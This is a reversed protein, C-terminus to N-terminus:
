FDTTDRKVLKTSLQIKNPIAEKKRLLKFMMGVTTSCLLEVHNNISSLEPECCTALTSNNYGVVALESPVKLNKAKAYKLVGVALGDDTAVVSDFDLEKHQLLKDKVLHIENKVYFKLSDIVPYGNDRLADEYGELKKTASYSYSDSLFLIKNRGSKILSTTIDYTSQKDDNFISYINEGKIYSNILFVPATKAADRIYDTTHDDAGCGAYTSGVYILADIRKSILLHTHSEKDKQHYGSCCLICNYGNEYIMHELNSVASAIFADAIDPCIIGITKMSDLGLGQAFINPTYGSENIVDLVKNRTKESVSPSGNVVRSVTAISVNALKAIDYINISM